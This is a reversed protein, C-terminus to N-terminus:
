SKIDNQGNGTKQEQLQLYIEYLEKHKWGIIRDLTRQIIQKPRGEKKMEELIIEKVEQQSSVRKQKKPPGILVTFEGKWKKPLNQWDSLDCQLIEEYQKTLERALCMERSGLVEHAQKLTDVIRSKREFFILTTKLNVFQALLRKKEGPKRPLFGLFTFPNPPLGSVMLATIPACPGPVPSVKYGAEQCAKILQYGPDSILPTGANSILAINKGQRLLSLVTQTRSPENHEYLSLFRKGQIRTLQLLLGAQRTDEALVIDVKTLIEKARKSLDGLNGIPTAVVWLTPSNLSTQSM